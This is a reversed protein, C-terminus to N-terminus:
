KIKLRYQMMSLKAQKLFNQKQNYEVGDQKELNRDKNTERKAMFNKRNLLVGM